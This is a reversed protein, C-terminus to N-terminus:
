IKEEGKELRAIGHRLAYLVAQTRRTLNLKAFINGLHTRVTAPSIFLKRGIEDNSLGHALERLVETERETLTKEPPGAPATHSLEHVLRRTVAPSFSPRGRAVQRIAHVLDDAGADKLMFGLAGADIAPFLKGDSSYSTLVLVSTKPHKVVIRSTAEVGGMGPMVLDMLVVDPELRGVLEIAENGDKAEGVVDIGNQDLLLVRLGHRVVPHDDAILVRIPKSSMLAGTKPPSRNQSLEAM